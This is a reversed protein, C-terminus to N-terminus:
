ILDGLVLCSKVTQTGCSECYGESQDPEVTTTYDCGPNICIGPAVSDFTAEEFMEELSKGEIKALTELKEQDSM